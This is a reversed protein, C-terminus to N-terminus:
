FMAGVAFSNQFLHSASADEGYGAWSTRFDYRFVMDPSAGSWIAMASGGVAYIAGGQKNQGTAGPNELRGRFGVDALPGVVLPGMRAGLTLGGSFELSSGLGPEKADPFEGRGDGLRLHANPVFWYPTTFPQTRLL